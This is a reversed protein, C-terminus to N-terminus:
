SVEHSENETRGPRAGPPRPVDIQADLLAPSRNKYTKTL